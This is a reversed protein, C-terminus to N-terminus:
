RKLSKLIKQFESVQQHAEAPGSAPTTRMLEAMATRETGTQDAQQLIQEMAASTPRTRMLWEYIEDSSFNLIQRDLRRVNGEADRDLAIIENFDFNALVLPSHTTVIWQVKPLAKRLRPVLERQLGPHLHLDIEDIMVIAEIQRPDRSAAVAPRRECWTACLDALWAASSRFGDPLDIAVIRDKESVGFRLLPSGNEPEVTLENEFIEQVLRRFLPLLHPNRRRDTLLVEAGALQALPRFMGIVGQVPLSLTKFPSDTEEGLNRTAGYGLVITSEAASPSNTKLGGKEDIQVSYSLNKREGLSATVTISTRESPSMNARRMRALLGGGLEKGLDGLLAISIAQLISSKGAGNIGAVCTWNGSLTSVERMPPNVGLHLDLDGFCRFNELQLREVVITEISATATGTSEASRTEVATRISQALQQITRRVQPSDLSDFRLKRWDVWQRQRLESTLEDPSTESLADVYHIPFISGEGERERALFAALEHRAHKSKLYSPTVIPVLFDSQELASKLVPEWEDGVKLGTKDLFITVPEGLQIRLEKELRRAFGEVFGDENDAWSYSIFVQPKASGTV